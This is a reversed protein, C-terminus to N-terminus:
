ERHPFGPAAVRRVSRRRGRDRGLRHYVSMTAVDTLPDALTAMEWDLVAPLRDHDDTLVNDLRYDGHVVAASGVGAPVDAALRAHLEDIPRSTVSHSADLQRAM